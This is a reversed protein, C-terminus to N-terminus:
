SSETDTGWNSARASAVCQGRVLCQRSFDATGLHAKGGGAITFCFTSGAGIESEVWIAGGLGEVIKKCVALGLGTGPVDTNALRIFPMFVRAQNERAIGLGNDRVRIVWNRGHQEATVHIEPSEAGRYKLANGILNQFLRVLHGEDATVTPLPDVTIIACSAKISGSLNQTAQAVAGRLEVRQPRKIPGASAFSLLDDILRAMRAAGDLILEAIENREGVKQARTALVQTFGSITSLPDRLDHAVTYAFEELELNARALEDAHQQREEEAAKRANVDRHNIVIAQVEPEVLLNSVTSEVWIYTGDRRRVRAHWQVPGPPESLVRQLARSSDDRDEPHIRDWENGGVLEEPQYGFVKNTSASAYLVKGDQDILSIADPSHEVLSRFGQFSAAM